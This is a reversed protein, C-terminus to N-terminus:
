TGAGDGTHPTRHATRVPVLTLPEPLKGKHSQFASLWWKNFFHKYKGVIWLINDDICLTEGWDEESRVIRGTMQQLIQCTLYMAYDKDEGCRAKMVAGRTDPFPVKGILQWRAEDDKFDYGTDVSPSVLIAGSDSPMRRFREIVSARNDSGHLMMRSAHVSNDLLLRARKYSVSHIIGKTHARAGILLDAKRLWWSLTNDDAENRFNMRVTPVHIVPRNRVPFTSQYEQFELEEEPIGLLEATKPRVTASVLVVKPVGRFLTERYKKPWLPDFRVGKMSDGHRGEEEIVWEDQMETVRELKRELKKSERIEHLLSFGTGPGEKVNAELEERKDQLVGLWYGAWESWEQQVYGSIPWTVGAALCEKRELVTGLYSSLQDLADHCEDLILIEVPKESGLGQRKKQDHMWCQYNTVVIDAKQARRYQDFYGCGGSQMPCRAGAQCPADAVRTSVPFGFQVAMDCGYNSMGRIDTSISEFDSNLQDQLGKTSTLVVTRKGSMAAAAMYMLSKGSGTPACLMAFRTPVNVIWDAIEYQSSRWSKFHPPLGFEYPTILM